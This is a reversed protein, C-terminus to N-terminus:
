RFPWICRKFLRLLRENCSKLILSKSVHHHRIISVFAAPPCDNLIFLVRTNFDTPEYKELMIRLNEDQCGSILERCKERYLEAARIKEEADNKFNSSINEGSLRFVALIDNTSVIGHEMGFLFTSLSDSGWGRPLSYYGGVARAHATRIMFESVTQRREGKLKQWMYDYVTEYEPSSNFISDLSGDQGIRKVRARFVDVGPYKESLALLTEVFRPEYVDDDCLLCFYEGHAYSLCKNWQAVLDKGGINEENIFYRIRADNFSHVISSIDYPSKDNVVM